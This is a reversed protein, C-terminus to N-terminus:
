LLDALDPTELHRSAVVVSRVVFIMLPGRLQVVIGGVKMAIRCFSMVFLVVLGAMFVGPLGQLVGLLRVLIGAVPMRGRHITVADGDKSMLIRLAPKRTTAPWPNDPPIVPHPHNGRPALIVRVCLLDGRTFPRSPELSVM